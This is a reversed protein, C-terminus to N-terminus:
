QIANDVADVLANLTNAGTEITLVPSTPQNIALLYNKPGSFIWSGLIYDKYSASVDAVYNSINVMKGIFPDLSEDYSEILITEENSVNRNVYLPKIYPIKMAAVKIQIIENIKDYQVTAAEMESALKKSEEDMSKLLNDFYSKVESKIGPMADIAKQNGIFKQPNTLLERFDIDYQKSVVDDIESVYAEVQDDWPADEPM